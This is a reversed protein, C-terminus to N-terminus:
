KSESSDLVTKTEVVVEEEAITTYGMARCVPDIEEVNEARRWFANLTQTPIRVLGRSCANRDDCAGGSRECRGGWTIPNGPLWSYQHGPVSPPLKGAVLSRGLAVTDPCVKSGYSAHWQDQSHPYGEPMECETDLDAIWRARNNRFSMFGLVHRQHRRLASLMTEGGDAHCETIRRIMGRDCTRRRNNQVVQWIGICDAANGSAEAICVRLFATLLAQESEEEPVNWVKGRTEAPSEWGFRKVQRRKPTISPPTPSVPPAIDALNEEFLSENKARRARWYEAEKALRVAREEEYGASAERECGCGTFTVLALVSAVIAVVVLIMRIANM